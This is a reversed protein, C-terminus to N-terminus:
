AVPTEEAPAEAGVEPEVAPAVDTQPATAPAEPVAAPAAAQEVAAQPAKPAEAQEVAAQPAKPAEAPANKSVTKKNRQEIYKEMGAMGNRKLLSAVTDSPQAGKSIWFEIRDKNFDITKGEGPNYFGLIEQNERKVAKSKEALVIRFAAQNQKGIRTLRIVQM